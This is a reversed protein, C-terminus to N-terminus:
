FRLTTEVYGFNANQGKPYINREVDSGWVRGFYGGLTLHKSPNYEVSLDWLLGLRRGNGSQRGTYGFTGPQFAGGGQYWLDQRSTLSLAHTDTRITFKDPRVLVTGFVDTNNMQNFFPFRAYIRPTPLASFFTNHENDNPSGDGSGVFYGARVWPRLSKSPPQWGAELSAAGARHDQLGWEGTQGAAWFLFDFTGSNTQLAHIYSLGFTGININAARDATSIRLAASRNDIKTVARVDQYGLGFLRLEGNSRGSRIPVTLAGYEWTVDLEGLGDLQYVGRTPRAAAFTLNTHGPNLSLKVGDESRGTVSFNFDGLLRHAIRVNKLWVLTKDTPTTETGDVFTFRGVMLESNSGGKLRVFAKSPFIQAYNQRGGNGTFYTAGLGLPGQIGQAVANNPLQLLSPQALEIQWDWRQKQQGFDLRLISEVFTYQHDGSDSTFWDWFQPRLRWSGSIDLGAYSVGQKPQAGPLTDAFEPDGPETIHKWRETLLPAAPEPTPLPRGRAILTMGPGCDVYSSKDPTYIRTTGSLCVFRTEGPISADAGFDTGIVGAVASPTRLEFSGRNKTIAAVQARIRGYSLQLQTQQLTADHKIISLKSNSGLTLISGDNLAVRIRGRQDTQLVDNWAVNTGAAAQLSLNGRKFWSNKVSAGIRGAPQTNQSLAPFAIVPLLAFLLTRRIAFYM